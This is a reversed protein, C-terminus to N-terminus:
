FYNIKEACCQFERERIDLVWKRVVAPTRGLPRPVKKANEYRNLFEKLGMSQITTIWIHITERNKRLQFSIKSKSIGQSFLEWAIVITTLTKM